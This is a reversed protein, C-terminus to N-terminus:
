KPRADSDGPGEAESRGRRPRGILPERASGAWAPWCRASTPTNPRRTGSRGAGCAASRHGSAAGGALGVLAECRKEASPDQLQEILAAIRKADECGRPSRPRCPTPWNSPRPCCRRRPRGSELFLRRASSSAWTPWNSRSRAQRRASEELFQKAVDPRGLDALTKAARVCEAPTTPKTALIAAVAPDEPQMDVVAPAKADPQEAAKAAAKAAPKEAKPAKAKPQQAWAPAALSCALTAFVSWSIARHCINM